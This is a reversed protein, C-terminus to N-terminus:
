NKGGKRRRKDEMIGDDSEVMDEESSGELTAESLVEVDNETGFSKVM